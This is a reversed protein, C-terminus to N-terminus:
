KGVRWGVIAGDPAKIREVTPAFGRRSLWGALDRLGCVASVTAASKDWGPTEEDSVAELAELIHLLLANPDM